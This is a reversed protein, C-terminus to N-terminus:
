LLLWKENDQWHSIVVLRPHISVIKINRDILFFREVCFKSSILAVQFNVNPKRNAALIRKINAACRVPVTSKEVVIKDSTSVAAIKRACLEIYKM